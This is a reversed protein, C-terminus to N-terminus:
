EAAMDLISYWPQGKSLGASLRSKESENLPRLDDKHMAGQEGSDTRVVHNGGTQGISQVIAGAYSEFAFDLDPKGSDDFPVVQAGDTKVIFYRSTDAMDQRPQTRPKASPKNEGPQSVYKKNAPAPRSPATPAPTEATTDLISYWRNGAQLGAAMTKQESPNLPRLGSKSIVGVEGSDIQVKRKSGTAGLDRVVSGAFLEVAYDPDAIQTSGSRYPSFMVGDRRVIQYDAPDVSSAPAAPPRSSRPTNNAQFPIAGPQTMDAPDGSPTPDDHGWSDDFLTAYRGGVTHRPIDIPIPERPMDLSKKRGFLGRKSKPTSPTTQGQSPLILGSSDTSTGGSAIINELEKVRDQLATITEGEPTDAPPLADAPMTTSPENSDDTPPFFDPLEGESSQAPATPAAAPDKKFFRSFFGTSRNTPTIEEGIPPLESSETDSSGLALSDATVEMDIPADNTLDIPDASSSPSTDLDEASFGYDEAPPAYTSPAAIVIPETSEVQRPSGRGILSFLGGSRKPPTNGIGVTEPAPAGTAPAHSDDYPLPNASASPPLSSDEAVTANNVSIDSTSPPPMDVPPLELAPGSPESKRWRDFFSPRKQPRPTAGPLSTDTSITPPSTIAEASVTPAEASPSPPAPPPSTQRSRGRPPTNPLDFTPVSAELTQHSVGMSPAPSPTPAAAPAPEPTPLKPKPHDPTGLTRNHEKALNINKEFDELAAAREKAVMVKSPDFVGNTIQGIAPFITLMMAVAALLVGSKLPQTRYPTQM